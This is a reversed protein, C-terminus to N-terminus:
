GMYEQTFRILNGTIKLIILFVTRRILEFPKGMFYRPFSRDKGQYPRPNKPDVPYPKRFRLRDYPLFEYINGVLVGKKNFFYVKMGVHYGSGSEDLVEVLM